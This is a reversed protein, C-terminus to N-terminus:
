KIQEFIVKKCNKLNEIQLIKESLFEDVNLNENRFRVIEEGLKDFDPNDGAYISGEVENEKFMPFTWNNFEHFGGFLRYIESLFEQINLLGNTYSTYLTFLRVDGIKIKDRIIQFTKYSIFRKIKNLIEKQAEIFFRFDLYTDFKVKDASKSEEILIQLNEM